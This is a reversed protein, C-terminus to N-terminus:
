INVVCVFCKKDRVMYSCIKSGKGYVFECQRNETFDEGPLQGSEVRKSLIDNLPEDM